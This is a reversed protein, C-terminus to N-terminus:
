QARGSLRFISVPDSPTNTQLILKGTFHGSRRPHLFRVRLTSSSSGPIISAPAKRRSFGNGRVSASRVTLWGSGNNALRFTRTRSTGERRLLGFDTGNGSRAAANETVARGKGTLTPVPPTATLALWSNM